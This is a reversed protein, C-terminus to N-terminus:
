LFSIFFVIKVILSIFNNFPFKFRPKFTPDYLFLHKIVNQSCHGLVYNVFLFRMDHVCLGHVRYLRIARACHFGKFARLSALLM